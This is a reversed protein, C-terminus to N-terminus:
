WGCIHSTRNWAIVSLNTPYECSSTILHFCKRASQEPFEGTMLSNGGCLETVRLKPTKKSRRRLLCDLRRHNSAGDRENHRWQLTSPSIIMILYWWDPEIYRGTRNMPWESVEYRSLDTWASQLRHGIGHVAQGPPWADTCPVPRDQSSHIHHHPCHFATMSTQLVDRVCDFIQGTYM